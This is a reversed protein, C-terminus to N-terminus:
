RRNRPKNATLVAGASVLALVGAALPLGVGTPVPDVPEEGANTGTTQSPVTVDSGTADTKETPETVPEFSEEAYFSLEDFWVTNQCVDYVGLGYVYFSFCYFDTPEFGLDEYETEIGAQFYKVDSFPVHYYGEYGAPIDKIDFVAEADETLYAVRMSMAKETKLWFCFGDGEFDQNDPKVKLAGPSTWSAKGTDYVIKLSNGSRSNEGTTDLTVVAGEGTEGANRASWTEILGRDSTYAEFDDILKHYDPNHKEPQDPTTPQTPDTGPTPDESEEYTGFEDLYMTGANPMTLAYLCLHYGTPRKTIAAEDKDKFGSYPFYVLNEGAKVEADCHVTTAWDNQLGELRVTGAAEAKIWLFYGDGNMDYFTESDDRFSPSNWDAKSKDYTWKVSGGSTGYGLTTCHEVVSGDKNNGANGVTFGQLDADFNKVTTLTVNSPVTVTSPTFTNAAAMLGTSVLTAVFVALSVCFVGVRKLTKQNM